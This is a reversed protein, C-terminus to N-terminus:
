NNRLLQYYFRIVDKYGEISIRENEGHIRSLDEKRLRIPLFRYTNETLAHYQKSDTGAIMLSPAVLADPFIERITKDLIRFGYSDVSSVNSPSISNVVEIKIREDALMKQIEMVIENNKKGPLPRLNIIAEAYDPVVNEKIGSKFIVPVMTTRVLANGSASKEYQSIIISKFLWQNAFVIRKFFSMEPGIYELFKEAPETIEATFKNEQIKSIGKSLVGIATNPNPMSSHGGELNISLKLTLYGKEAIGILAAPQDIGPVIGETIVLGEDLVFEAKIKNADMWEAIKDAGQKGMTEEDHGFAFYITREPAFDTRLLLEAAEMIGLVSLKDDLSGRGWLYGNKIVGSFADEEWKGEAPVVDMHALLVVPKLSLNKGKWEYVLSYNNIIQKKLQSHCLPYQKSLFEIFNQFASSDFKTRDDYSITPIKIAQSLRTNASSDITIKPAAIIKSQRSSFRFTNILLVLIIVALLLGSIILIKKM